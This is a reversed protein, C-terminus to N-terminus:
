VIYFVRPLDIMVISSDLTVRCVALVVMAFKGATSLTAYANERTKLALNFLSVLESM